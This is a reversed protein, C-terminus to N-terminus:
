KIRIRKVEVGIYRTGNEFKVETMTGNFSVRDGPKLPEDRKYSDDPTRMFLPAEQGKDSKITLYVYTPHARHYSLITGQGRFSKGEHSYLFKEYPTTEAMPDNSTKSHKDADAYLEFVDRETLLTFAIWGGVAVAIVGLGIALDRFPRKRRRRVPDWDPDNNDDRRRRRRASETRDDDRMDRRRPADEDPLPLPEIGPMPEVIPKLAVAVPVAASAEVQFVKGCFFCGVMKDSPLVDVGRKCHPCKTLM